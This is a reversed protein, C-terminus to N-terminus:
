PLTVSTLSRPSPEPPAPGPQEGLVTLQAARSRVAGAENWAKCYYDGAQDERLGQLDLHPGSGHQRRDLLTGNHFRFSATPHCRPSRLSPPGVVETM